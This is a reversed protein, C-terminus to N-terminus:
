KAGGNGAPKVKSPTQRVAQVKKKDKSNNKNDKKDEAKKDAAEEKAKLREM